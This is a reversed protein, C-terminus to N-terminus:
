KTLLQCVEKYAKSFKVLDKEDNYFSISARVLGREDISKVYPEACLMGSRVAINKEGLVTAVDGPHADTKFTVINVGDEWVPTIIEKLKATLEKEYALLEERGLTTILECAKQLQLAGAINPTGAEFKGCGDIYTQEHKEVEVVIGGGVQYTDMKDFHKEKVCLCGIGTPGYLKHGSFSVFDAGPYKFKVISQAADIHILANYAKALTVIKKYPQQVGSINGIHAFSILIRDYVGKTRKLTESLMLTDIYGNEDLELYEINANSHRWPLLNAHHETWPVLVLDASSLTLANALLNISETTNRTFILENNKFGAFEAVVSRAEEYKTTAEQGLKHPSRHINANFYWYYNYETIVRAPTMTTAANDLYVHDKYNPFYRKYM